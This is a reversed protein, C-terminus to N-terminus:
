MRGCQVCKTALHFFFFSISFFFSVAVLIGAMVNLPSWSQAFLFLILHHLPHLFLLFFRSRFFNADDCSIRMFHVAVDPCVSTARATLILACCVCLSYLHYLLSCDICFESGLCISFTWIEEAENVVYAICRVFYISERM